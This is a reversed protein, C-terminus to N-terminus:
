DPPVSKPSPVLIKTVTRHDTADECQILHRKRLRGPWPGQVKCMETESTLQVLEPSTGSQQSDSEEISPTDARAVTNSDDSLVPNPQMAVLSDAIKKPCMRIQNLSVRISAAAPKTILRLDAGNDYLKLIRYPGM